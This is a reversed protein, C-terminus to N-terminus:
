PSRSFPFDVEPRRGSMIQALAAASGCALTFGLTGHGTNLFLNPFRTEGILPVNGPTAPRLGAWYQVRARDGARPFLEFVRELIAGCRRPDVETQYGDIDAMGAVRLRDGLRSFVLKHEEDTLSVHPAADGAGAPLTVSYGKVPFVPLELGLPRLLAASYSGLAIVYADASVASEQGTPRRVLVHAIRSGAAGLSLAVEGFRFRVGREACLAALQQTFIHADGSEDEPAYVGGALRPEFARLAPEIVVCQAPTQVERRVGQASIWEAERAAREFSRPASYISLIGRTRERYEIGTARRLAKLGALSARALALVARANAQARRATCERLFRVCWLWQRWDLRPRFALPAGERGLWKLVQLPADPNAWPIAHSVSIQGGNAFSTELAPRDRREIVTVEHGAGELYWASTVGVVGAGLVVVKM